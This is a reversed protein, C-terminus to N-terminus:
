ESAPRLDLCLVTTHNRVYLRGNSLVPVTWCRAGQDRTLANYSSGEFLKASATPKFDETSADALYLGGKETFLLLRGDAFIMTGHMFGKKRWRPEGTMFDICKLGTEDSGYLHGDFLIPTQLKNRFRTTKWVENAVLNEKEAKLKFLASGYGYGTSVFLHGDHFVPTSANVGSHSPWAMRLVPRGSDVDAIIFSEALFGCVYPRGEFTFARPTAYATPDDGCIWIVNGTAKDMACLSGEKGGAGVIALKGEILVSGSYGWHPRSTFPRSWIERGDKADCCLLRGHGGHIFIRGDDVTPTSRTGYVHKDPDTFQEEFPKKWIVGGTEADLCFLVQKAEEQGCTYVRGGVVAFSSFAPGVECQWLRAPGDKPWPIAPLKERSIGDRRPGFLNPWDEASAIPSLASLLIASFVYKTRM